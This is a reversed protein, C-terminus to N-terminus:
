ITLDKKSALDSSEIMNEFYDLRCDLMQKKFIRACNLNPFDRCWQQTYMAGRECGERTEKPTYQVVTGKNVDFYSKQTQTLSM